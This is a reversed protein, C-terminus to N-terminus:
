LNLCLDQDFEDEFDRSRLWVDAYFEFDQDFRAESARGFNLKM